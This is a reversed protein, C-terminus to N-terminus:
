EEHSIEENIVEVNDVFWDMELIAEPTIVENEIVRLHGSQDVIPGTFPNFQGTVMMKKMLEILKVTDPPLWRKDYYIDIVDMDIGWWFNVLKHESPKNSINRQYSGNLISSIIKRYFEGWKWIPAALYHMPKKTQSDIDCLMSYVGYEKTIDRPVILNKNSIIDANKEILKESLDTSVKPNNWEGTWVVKLKAKPNTMKIGLAFANICSIVEPNPATATYGVINTQTLSGAIIGTLFRPEYTRGFYNAMHVYPRNGSCNFFKTDPLELACRVTARRFVESTTFVVDFHEKSFEYIIEYASKDEPVEEIYHTEIQGNFYAEIERRGLEHSYTWASSLSNRAYVFGVKLKRTSLRTPFLGTTLSTFLTQNEITESNVQIDLDEEEGYNSFEQLLHPLIKEVQLTDLENPIGYLKSYLVFADGTTVSTNEYGGEKLTLRFPQYVYKYFHMYKDDGQSKLIPNYDNLYRLLRKYRRPKSLWIDMINTENYFELFAYYQVITEDSEDFKPILRQIDASVMAADFYKLVSVRKNGEVVYYYNLYEYVKIPDRIGERLHASCLNQWKGAFESREGELPMFNKSFVMRRANYYTGVIKEIPIERTGLNVSAAIEVNNLLGDLSTLHGSRGKAKLQNYERQGKNKADQYYSLVSEYPM